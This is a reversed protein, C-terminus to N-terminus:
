PTETLNGNEACWAKIGGLPFQTGDPDIHMCNINTDVMFPYKQKALEPWDKKLHGEAIVRACFELDSTGVYAEQSGTDENFWSKVPTEFVRRVTAGGLNYEPSVDWVSRLLKVNILLMGTPVGDCMVKDGLKWDTYYSNGRGRYIMPEAPDSRTFYLGSVVPYKGSRMYANFRILADPQPMTDHEILLLWEYGKTVAEHAIMNQADAVSYRIPIMGNVYQVMDVKSWNAPIVMGYKAAAWEMRINGTSPTGLLLRKQFQIVGSDVLKETSEVKASPKSM